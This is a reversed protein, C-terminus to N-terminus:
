ASRKLIACPSDTSSFLVIFSIVKSVEGFLLLSV